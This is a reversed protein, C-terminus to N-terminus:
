VVSALTPQGAMSFRYRIPFTPGVSSSSQSLEKTQLIGLNKSWVSTLLDQILLATSDSEFQLPSLNILKLPLALLRCRSHGM